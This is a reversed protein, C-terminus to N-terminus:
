GAHVGETFKQNNKENFSPIDDPIRSTAPGQDAVVTKDFCEAGANIL